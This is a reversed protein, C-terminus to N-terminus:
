PPFGCGERSWIGKGEVLPRVSEPDKLSLPHPKVHLSLRSPPSPLFSAEQQRVRDGKHPILIIPTYYYKWTQTGIDVAPLSSDLRVLHSWLCKM